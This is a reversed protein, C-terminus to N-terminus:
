LLTVFALKHSHEIHFILAQPALRIRMGSSL